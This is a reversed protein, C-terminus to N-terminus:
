GAGAAFLDRAKLLAEYESGVRIHCELEFIESIIRGQLHAADDVKGGSLLGAAM